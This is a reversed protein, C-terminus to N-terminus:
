APRKRSAVGLALLGLAGLVWTEPEPVAPTVKFNDFGNYDSNMPNGADFGNHSELKITVGTVNALVNPLSAGFNAVSLTTGYTAWSTTPQAGPELDFAVSGATGTITVLGFGPWDSPVGSLNIADFSLTGDLYVSWDGLLATPLVVVMDDGNIDHETIYGAPNYALTGGNAAMVGQADSDFTLSIGAAQAAPLSSALVLAAAGMAKPWFSPSLCASVSNM